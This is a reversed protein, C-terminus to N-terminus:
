VKCNKKDLKDLRVRMLNFINPDKEIGTREISIVPLIIAGNEDRLSRDDKIQFSREPSQWFVPVQTYGANTKASLNLDEKLWSTIAYDISEITSSLMGVEELTYGNDKPPLQAFDFDDPLMSLGEEQESARLVLRM